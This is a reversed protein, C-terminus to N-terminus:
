GLGIERSTPQREETEENSIMEIICGKRNRSYQNMTWEPTRDTVCELLFKKGNDEIKFILKRM